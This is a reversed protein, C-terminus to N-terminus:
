FNMMFMITFFITYIFLWPFVTVIFEHNKTMFAMLLNM